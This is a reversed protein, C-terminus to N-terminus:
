HQVLVCVPLCFYGSHTRQIRCWFAENLTVHIIINTLTINEKRETTQTETVPEDIIVMHIEAAQPSM